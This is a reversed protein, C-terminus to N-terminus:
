KKKKRTVYWNGDVTEEYNGEKAPPEGAKSLSERHPFDQSPTALKARTVYESIKNMIKGRM